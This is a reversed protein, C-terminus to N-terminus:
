LIKQQSRDEQVDRAKGGFTDKGTRPVGSESEENELSEHCICFDLFEILGLCLEQLCRESIFFAALLGSHLYMVMYMTFLDNLANSILACFEVAPFRELQFSNNTAVAIM